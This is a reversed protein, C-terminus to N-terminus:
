AASRFVSRINFSNSSTKRYAHDPNDTATGFLQMRYYNQRGLWDSLYHSTLWRRWKIRLMQNLYTKYVVVAIFAAALYSFKILAAVFADYKVEQLSNYFDNNWQNLLVNIFVEGLNLGIIVALLLWAM